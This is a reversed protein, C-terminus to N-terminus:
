GSSLPNAIKYISIFVLILLFWNIFGIFLRVTEPFGVISPIKLGFMFKLSNKINSQGISDSVVEGSTNIFDSGNLQSFNLEQSVGSILLGDEFALNTSIFLFFWFVIISM